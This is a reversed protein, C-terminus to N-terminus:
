ETHDVEEMEVDDRNEKKALNEQNISKQHGKNESDRLDNAVKNERM